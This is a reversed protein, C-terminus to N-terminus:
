ELVSTDDALLRLTVLKVDGISVKDVDFIASVVLVESSVRGIDVALIEDIRLIM